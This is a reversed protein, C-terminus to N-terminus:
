SVSIAMVWNKSWIVQKLGVMKQSTKWPANLYGLVQTKTKLWLENHVIKYDLNRTELKMELSNSTRSTTQAIGTESTGFTQVFKTKPFKLKLKELLSNPMPETGYTIMKLSTLAYKEEIKAMLMMNLFTPSAPLVNVKYREILSAVDEPNRNKPIVITAGMALGNFLTNLGGIHDFMLFVLLSLKKQKKDKYSNILTDLNHIMAKPTGTSGSSFLVLGSQNQNIISQIMVHKDLKAQPILDVEDAKLQIIWDCNVVKLRKEIEETNNPVIPVIIAKKEFLALFLAISYFNYDSLLAVVQNDDFKTNLYTKYTTIQNFLASYSFQHDQDAIAIKDDLKQISEILWHM